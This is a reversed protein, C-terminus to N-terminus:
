IRIVPISGTSSECDSNSDSTDAMKVMGAYQAMKKMYVVNYIVIIYAYGCNDDKRRGEAQPPLRDVCPDKRKYKVSSFFKAPNIRKRQRFIM